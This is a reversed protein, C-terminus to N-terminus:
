HLGTEGAEESLQNAFQMLQDFIVPDASVHNLKRYDYSDSGVNAVLGGAEQVLLNTPAFDWEHGHGNFVIRGDLGGNAIMTCEYGGAGYRRVSLVREDLKDSFAYTGPKGSATSYTVWARDIPRKSVHIAHGNCTAGHDKIAVYFDDLEFNYIVSFVPENNDILAIMNTAIPIGRIFPETGDIPDALWFTKQTYDVGGEEGGFGIGSDLEHLVRRLESEVYTDMETVASADEKLHHEIKGQAELLQPRVEELVFRIRQEAQQLFDLTPNM